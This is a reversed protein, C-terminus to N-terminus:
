QTAEAKLLPILEPHRALLRRLNQRAQRVRCRLEYETATPYLHGPSEIASMWFRAKQLLVQPSTGKPQSLFTDLFTSVNNM